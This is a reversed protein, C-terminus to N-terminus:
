PEPPPKIEKDAEMNLIVRKDGFLKVTEQYKIKMFSEKGVELKYDINERKIEPLGMKQADEICNQVVTYEDSKVLYRMNDAMAHEFKSKRLYPGSFVAVAWGIVVLIVLFILINIKTGGSALSAM